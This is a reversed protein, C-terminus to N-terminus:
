TWLLKRYKVIIHLMETDKEICKAEEIHYWNCVTNWESTGYSTYLKDTIDDTYKTRSKAWNYAELLEDYTQKNKIKYLNIKEIPWGDEIFCSEDDFMTYQNRMSAEGCDKEWFNILCAFTLEEILYDIDTFYRPIIDTLFKQKPKIRCQVQKYWTDKIIYLLRGVKM